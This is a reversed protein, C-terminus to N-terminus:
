LNKEWGRCIQGIAEDLAKRIIAPAAKKKYVASARQGLTVSIEEMAAAICNGRNDNNLSCSLLVREASRVRFPSPAVSGVAIRFDIIVDEEEAYGVIAAVSVRSIALANRRGLKAFASGTRRNLAPFSIEQIIEDAGLKTKGIGAFLEELLMERIGSPSVLKVRADLAVLAPVADAAPSANAINGGITGMNRIQPSGVMSAAQALVFAKERILPSKVLDTFTTMAGVVLTDDRLYIGKLEQIKYLAVINETNIKGEQMGIVYDTGGAIVKSKGKKEALIGLLEELGEPAYYACPKM